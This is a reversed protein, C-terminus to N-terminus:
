PNKTLEPVTAEEPGLALLGAQVLLSAQAAHTAPSAALLRRTAASLVYGEGHHCAARLRVREDM